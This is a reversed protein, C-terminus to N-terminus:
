QYIQQRHIMADHGYLRVLDAQVSKCHEHFIGRLWDWDPAADFREYIDAQFALLAQAEYAARLRDYAREMTLDLLTNGTGDVILVHRVAAGIFWENPDSGRTIGSPDSGYTTESPDSGYTIVKPKLDSTISQRRAYALCARWERGITKQATQLFKVDEVPHAVTRRDAPLEMSNIARDAVDSKLSDEEPGDRSPSQLEPSETADLPPTSSGPSNDRLTAPEQTTAGARTDADRAEPKISQSRRADQRYESYRVQELAQALRMELWDHDARTKDLERELEM